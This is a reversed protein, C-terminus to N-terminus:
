EQNPQRGVPNPLDPPNTGPPPTGGGSSTTSGSAPTAVTVGATSLPVRNDQQCAAAALTDATASLVGPNGVPRSPTAFSVGGMVVDFYPYAFYSSSATLASINLSAM